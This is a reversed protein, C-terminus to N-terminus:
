PSGLLSEFVPYRQGTPRFGLGEYLILSPNNDAQTNVTLRDYGLESFERLLHSVLTRGLGRGQYPPDVALRALHAALGTATSIQYAVPKGDAEVVSALAAQDLAAALAGRSHRWLGRFARHDMQQVAPIDSRRMPRVRDAHLGPPPPKSGRWELFVVANTEKFGSEALLPAMWRELLLAAAVTAEAERAESAAKRWLPKWAKSADVGSAVAFLRIWAVGPPDPPCALCAMPLDGELALLFPHSGLLDLADVWDLHQHSRTSATLLASVLGRDQPIASRLTLKAPPDKVM